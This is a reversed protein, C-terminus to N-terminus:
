MFTIKIRVQRYVSNTKEWIQPLISQVIFQNYIVKFSKFLYKKHMLKEKIIFYKTKEKIKQKTANRKCDHCM